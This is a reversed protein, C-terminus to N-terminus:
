AAGCIISEEQLAFIVVLKGSNSSRLANFKDYMQYPFGFQRQAIAEILRSKDKDSIKVYIFKCDIKEVIDKM